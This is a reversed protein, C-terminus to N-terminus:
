SCRSFTVHRRRVRGIPASSVHYPRPSMSVIRHRLHRFDVGAPIRVHTEHPVVIATAMSGSGSAAPDSPGILM